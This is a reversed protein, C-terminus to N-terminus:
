RANVYQVLTADQLVAHGSSITVALIVEQRWIKWNSKFPYQPMENFINAYNAM